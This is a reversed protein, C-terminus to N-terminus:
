DALRVHRQFGNGQEYRAAPHDASRLLRSVDLPPITALASCYYFFQDFIEIGSTEIEVQRLGSLHSFLSTAVTIAHSRVRVRELLPHNIM